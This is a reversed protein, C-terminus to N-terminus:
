LFFLYKHPPNHHISYVCVIGIGIGGGLVGSTSLTHLVDVTRKLWIMLKGDGGRFTRFAQAQEQFVDIVSDPSECDRLRNIIQHQTLNTGTRNEFENFADELLSKLEPSPDISM